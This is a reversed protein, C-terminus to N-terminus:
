PFDEGGNGPRCRYLRGMTKLLGKILGYKEIAMIAYESCTPTYVCRHPWHATRIQYFRIMRIAANKLNM